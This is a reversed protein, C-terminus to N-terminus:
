VLLYTSQIGLQIEQDVTLSVKQKEGTVPNEDTKMFYSIVAILAIVIGVVIRVRYNQM